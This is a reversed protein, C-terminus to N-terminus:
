GVKKSAQGTVMFYTREGINLAHDAIREIHHIALLLWGAAVVQDPNKIMYDFIQSRLTRYLEDVRDELKQLDDFPETEKRVFMQISQRIMQRAVNAMLPVDVYNTAGLEHEVKMCIKAIDVALDGIREIDTVIKIVTGIERLDRAMPQQLALLRLCRQELEIEMVDIDDDDNLVERALSVDLRQLADVARTVMSEAGSAMEIVSQELEGIERNYAPRQAPTQEM